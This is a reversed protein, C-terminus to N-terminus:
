HLDDHLALIAAAAAENAAHDRRPWVGLVVLPVRLQAVLPLRQVVHGQRHPVEDDLPLVACTQPKMRLTTRYLHLRELYFPWFLWHFGWRLPITTTPTAPRVRVELIYPRLLHQPEVVGLPLQELGARLLSGAVLAALADTAAARLQGATAAPPL